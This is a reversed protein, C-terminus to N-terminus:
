RPAAKVVTRVRFFLKGPSLIPTLYRAQVFELLDGAPATTESWDDAPSISWTKLDPSSEIQFSLNPDGVRRFYNLDLYSGQDSSVVRTSLQGFDDPSRPDLGFAYEVFNNRGDHDPDADNGSIRSLLLEGPTFYLYKWYDMASLPSFNVFDLWGADAGANLLEDKVYVWDLDHQGPPILFSSDVWDIDGSIYDVLEDDVLFELADYDEECSVKWYFYLIGPGQVSTGVWAADNDKVPGSQLASFGDATTDIQPFWSQYNYNTWELGPNNLALDVATSKTFVYLSAERSVAVGFRNSIIVHYAGASATTINTVTLLNTQASAILEDDKYWRYTLPLSGAAQALFVVKDGAYGSQSVPHRVVVPSEKNLSTFTVSDLWGADDGASFTEDKVYDWSLMHVGEPVYWTSEEWGWEGSIADLFEDDMSFSLFDYNPESSVKWQFSLQGPGILVAMVQSYGGDLTAGSQLADTGDFTVDSQRFWPEDGGTCWTFEKNELADEVESSTVNVRVFAAESTVNGFPNSVVARYNGTDTHQANTIVLVSQTRGQLERGNQTWQYAFPGLGNAEVALELTQGAYLLQGVPQKSISPAMRLEAVSLKAGRSTVSGASNSVVVSYSGSDRLGVGKLELAANTQGPLPDTGKRWQFLLPQSGTASARFTVPGGATAAVDAPEAIIRPAVSAATVTLRAGASEISGAENRVLVSYRGEDTLRAAAFELTNSVAGPINVGDKQWQYRLPGPGGAIVTLIAPSGETVMESLPQATITPPTKGNPTYQFIDMYGRDDGKSLSADKVYRWVLQHPGPSVPFDKTVWDVEGSISEVRIDDILFDLTDNDRESSVRWSFTIKGPGTVTTTALTGQRGAIKGSAGAASGDRTITTQSGWLTNGSSFFSQAPANVATALEPRQVVGLLHIGVSATGATNSVQVQYQGIDTAAFSPISYTPGTAGSLVRGDRKWVYSLPASGGATIALTVNTGQLVTAETQGNVSESNLTLSAIEPFDTVTTLQLSRALNVFAGSRVKGTLKDRRDAGALVRNILTRYDAQPFQAKLIALLGTVHPAAFSTGSVVAYSDDAVSSTSPIVDGPAVVDVLREGYNSQRWLTGSRTGAAVAIMNDFPYNSPYHAVVDNNASDNGASSVFIIGAQRLRELADMMSQNVEGSLLGGQQWSANVIAAGKARAYDLCQIADSLAGAGQNNFWKLPMLQVKWAVGAIGKGNNGVAGIVGAVSTGHGGVGLTADPLDDMPDGTDDIANIGHVDDVFGNGDDDIGNGPIEGPNTWINAALDEHTYRVGSDVVAVIVNPADHRVDWAEPADIDVDATGGDTGTNHLGWQEPFRADNPTAAAARVIADPEAFEVTEPFARLIARARPVSDVEVAAFDIYFLGPATRHQRVQGGFQRAIAALREPAAGQRLKVLIHSAVAEFRRVMRKEDPGELGNLREEVYVAYPFNTPQLLTVRTALGDLPPAERVDLIRAGPWAPHEQRLTSSPESTSIPATVSVPVAHREAQSLLKLGATRSPQSGHGISASGTDPNRGAGRPFLWFILVLLVLGAGIRPLVAKRM